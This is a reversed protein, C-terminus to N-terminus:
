SRRATAVSASPLAAVDAATVVVTRFPAVTTRAGTAEGVPVTGVRDAVSVAEPAAAPVSVKWCRGVPLLPQVVAHGPCGPGVAVQAGVVRLLPVQSRRTTAVTPVPVRTLVWSATTTSRVSGVTASLTGAPGSDPVTVRPAVAASACVPTAATARWYRALPVVLQLVQPLSVVAGYEQASAVVASASPLQSSRATAVSRTPWVAAVAGTVRVTSLVPGVRVRVTGGPGKLPVTLRVEVAVSGAPTPDTVKSCRATPVVAQDDQPM